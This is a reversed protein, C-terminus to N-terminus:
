KVKMNNIIYFLIGSLWFPLSILISALIKNTGATIYIFIAFAIGLIILIIGGIEEKFWSILVGVLLIIAFFVVMAGEITFPQFNNITEGICMFFFFAIALTGMIRAIWRIIKITRYNKSINNKM